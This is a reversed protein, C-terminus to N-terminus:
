KKIIIAPHFHSSKRKRIKLKLVKGFKKGSLSDISQYFKTIRIQNSALPQCFQTTKFYFIIKGGVLRLWIQQHEDNRIRDFDFYILFNGKNDVNILKKDVVFPLSKSAKPEEFLNVKALFLLFPKYWFNMIAIIFRNLKQHIMMLLNQEECIQWLKSWVICVFINLAVYLLTYNWSHYIVEKRTTKTSPFYLLKASYGFM